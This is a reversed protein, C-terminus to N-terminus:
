IYILNMEYKQFAELKGIFKNVKEGIFRTNLKAEVSMVKDTENVPKTLFIKGRKFDSLYQMNWLWLPFLCNCIILYKHKHISLTITGVM